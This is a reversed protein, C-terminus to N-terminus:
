AAFAGIVVGNGSENENGNGNSNVKELKNRTLSAIALDLM